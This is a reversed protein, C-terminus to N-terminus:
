HAGPDPDGREVRRTLQELHADVAGLQERLRAIEATLQKREEPDDSSSGTPLRLAGALTGALAAIIGIGTLMLVVGALRGEATEPVIDGYGVTTLTVVGWWLADAYSAFEANTAREAEYAIYSVVTVVIAAVAAARGLRRFMWRAARTAVLLRALRALRVVVLFRSHSLGPIFFWPATFIVIMLDFRGGWTGLYRVTLRRHVVFDVLFVLWSVIYVVAGVVSDRSVLWMLIPLVAALALPLEM